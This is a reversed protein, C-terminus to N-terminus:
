NPDWFDIIGGITLDTIAQPNNTCAYRAAAGTTTFVWNGERAGVPDLAVLKKGKNNQLIRLHMHGFGDVRQTCVLKGLVKMIEM